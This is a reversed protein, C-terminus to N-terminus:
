RHWVSGKKLKCVMEYLLMIPQQRSLVALGVYMGFGVLASIILALLRTLLLANKCCVINVGYVALVLVATMLICPMVDMLQAILGYGVIKKTPLANLVLCIPYLVLSMAAILCFPSHQIAIVVVLTGVIKKVIELKLYVDSRGKSLLMQLNVVNFPSFAYMVCSLQIYPVIPLWKEGFLVITVSEASVAVYALIPFVAFCSTKLIKSMMSKIRLDDDQVQAMVPFAVRSLTSSVTLMLLEPLHRGKNVYALDEKAYMRGILLGYLNNYLTDILTTLSLKWGFSFLGHLNKFSFMLKPRWGIVFWRMITGILNSAFGSWVLAWPGMGYLAFSIGVVASVLTAVISVKFSLKFLLKRSLEANQVSNISAFILTTASVRLIPVLIDSHYFAAIYPATFFLIGYLVIGISLSVYFVSNFDLESADKKQVLASGFGSDVLVGAVALFISLLAVTGYDSPSLLRALILTVVFAVGQISFRELLAWLFGKIGKNRLGDAM